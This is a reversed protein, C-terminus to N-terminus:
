FRNREKSSSVRLTCSVDHLLVCSTILLKGHHSHPSQIVRACRLQEEEARSKEQAEEGEGPREMLAALKGRIIQLLNRSMELVATLEKATKLKVEKGTLVDGTGKKTILSLFPACAGGSQITMKMKQKPTRDGHRIVSIVCRLEEEGAARWLVRNVSLGVYFKADRSQMNGDALALM